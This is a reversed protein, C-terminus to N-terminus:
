LFLLDCLLKRYCDGVACATCAAGKDETSYLFPPTIYGIRFGWQQRAVALRPPSLRSHSPFTSLAIHLILPRLLIIHSIDLFIQKSLSCVARSNQAM